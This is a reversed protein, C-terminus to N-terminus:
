VSSADQRQRAANTDVPGKKPNVGRKVDESRPLGKAVPYPLNLAMDVQRSTCPMARQKM